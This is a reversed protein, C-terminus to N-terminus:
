GSRDRVVVRVDPDNSAQDFLEVLREQAARDIANSRGPRNITVWAVHEVVQYTVDHSM